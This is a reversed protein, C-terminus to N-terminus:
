SVPVLRGGSVTLAANWCVPDCEPGNPMTRTLAITREDDILVAGDREVLISVQAVSTEAEGPVPGNLVIEGPRGDFDTCSGNVCWRVSLPEAGVEAGIGAPDLSVTSGCGVATCGKSCGALLLAAAAAAAVVSWGRWRAGQSTM